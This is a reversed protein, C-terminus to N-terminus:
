YKKRYVTKGILEFRDSVRGLTESHGIILHGNPEIVDAFKEVLERQTERDFYIMVNRCFVVDFKGSMPWRTMLNLQRFHLLQKLLPKATLFVEQDITEKKFWQEKQTQSLGNTKELEYTGVRAKALVDTDLDTCLVKADWGELQRAFPQLTMSISYPEEGTSCGASWIRLKRDLKKTELIEPMATGSLYEFHHNERFFSTLNTTISNLFTENERSDGSELISIYDSFTSLKLKKLRTSIRRYILQKKATSISIGSREFIMGRLKEFEADTFPYQNQSQTQEQKLLPLSM